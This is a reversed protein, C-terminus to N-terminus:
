YTVNQPSVSEKWLAERTEGLALFNPQLSNQPFGSSFDAQLSKSPLRTFLQPQPPSTCHVREIPYLTAKCDQLLSADQESLPPPVLLGQQKMSHFGPYAGALHTEQSNYM